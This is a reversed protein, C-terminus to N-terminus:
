GAPGPGLLGGVADLIMRACDRKSVLGSEEEGAPHIVAIANEDSGFGAGSRTIDNHVIIDVNKRERKARARARGEKGAEAAFGVLVRGDRPRAGLDALIDVTRELEITLSERASKDIKGDVADTPRYDAVAACMIFADAEGWHEQAARGLAEATPADVYTIEPDRPLDVNAALVTVAAGRARAEEALAWGMRGSSRNGLYRVADLPERTGGASIVVRRGALPGSGLVGDVARAIEEPTALRGVGVDGDALQGHGPPIVHAGRSVLRDLNARTAAHEWMRTNMAPALLLPGDHALAVSSLLDDALGAALRALTNATAPAVLVVDADRAYELHRYDPATEDDFLSVGVEQGSLAAFTAPGVFRRASRTMVVRVRHGSKQLLRLVDVAKYAAIGGSVGLLVDAVPSVASSSSPRSSSM